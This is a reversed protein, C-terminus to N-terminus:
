RPFRVTDGCIKIKNKLFKRNYVPESVFLKKLILALKIGFIIYKWDYLVDMKKTMTVNQMRAPEQYSYASHSLKLIM